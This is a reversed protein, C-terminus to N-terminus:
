TINSVELNKPCDVPDRALATPSPQSCKGFGAANCASTRFEYELGEQLGSVRYNTGRILNSHTNIKIICYGVM